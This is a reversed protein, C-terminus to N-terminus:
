TNEFINERWCVKKRCKCGFWVLGFWNGLDIFTMCVYLVYHLILCSCVDGAQEKVM